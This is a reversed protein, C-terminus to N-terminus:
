NKEALTSQAIIKTAHFLKMTQNVETEVVTISTKAFDDESEPAVMVHNRVNAGLLGILGNRIQGIMARSTMARKCTVNQVMM